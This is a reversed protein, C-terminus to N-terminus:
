AEIMEASQRQLMSLWNDTWAQNQPSWMDFLKQFRDPEPYLGSDWVKRMARSPPQLESHLEQRAHVERRVVRLLTLHAKLQRAEKSHYPNICKM